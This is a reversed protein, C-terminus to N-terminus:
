IPQIGLRILEPFKSLLHEAILINSYEHRLPAESRLLSFSEVRENEDLKMLERMKQDFWGIPHLELLIETLSNYENKLEPVYPDDTQVDPAQLRFHDCFQRIIMQTARRKSQISYGAIHPTAFLSQDAVDPNFVPENEWVDIVIQNLKNNSKQQMVVDEDIVGGRSSNILLHYNTEHFWSENLLHRTPHSGSNTLPTHFTLMNCEKLEEFYSSSFEADREERPPDYLIHPISFNRLLRSVETGVAGVGVIGAKLEDFSMMERELFILSSTLVYEAVTVANCGKADGVTIENSELYESDLHDTGSSGTAVFSINGTNPLTNENIPTTTNVFLADYEPANGPLHKPDFLDVEVSGPMMEKFNYLYRNALIKM